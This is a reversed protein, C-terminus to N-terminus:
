HRPFQPTTSYVPRLSASVSQPPALWAPSLKVGRIRRSDWSRLSRGARKAVRRERGQQGGRGPGGHSGGGCRMRAGEGAAGRGRTILIRAPRLAAACEWSAAPCTAGAVPAQACLAAGRTLAAPPSGEVVRGQSGGRGRRAGVPYLGRFPERAAGLTQLRKAVLRGDLARGWPARRGCRVARHRLHACACRPHPAPSPAPVRGPAPRGGRQGACDEAPDSPWSARGASGRSIRPAESPPSPSTHATPEAATERGEQSTRRRTRPLGQPLARSGPGVPPQPRPPRRPGTPLIGAGRTLGSASGLGM